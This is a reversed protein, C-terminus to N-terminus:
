RTRRDLFELLVGEWSTRKEQKTRVNYSYVQGGGSLSYRSADESILITGTFCDFVRVLAAVEGSIKVLACILNGDDYNSFVIAPSQSSVGSEVRGRVPVSRNGLVYERLDAAVPDDQYKEGLWECAIEYAIKAVAASCDSFNPDIDFIAEANEIVEESVVAADVAKVLEDAPLLPLGAKKRQRQIIKAADIPKGRKDYVYRVQLGNDQSSSLAASIVFPALNGTKPNRSVKIRIDPKAALVGEGLIDEIGIARNGLAGGLAARKVRVLTHDTLAVDVKSGLLNNCGKCVLRTILAGGLASPFIHEDSPARDNQCFICRM